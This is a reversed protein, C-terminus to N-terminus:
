CARPLCRRNVVAEHLAPNAQARDVVTEQARRSLHATQNELLAGLTQDDGRDVIADSVRESLDPRASIARLHEQGQTRAVRLLADESLTRSGSLLPAAVGIQDGALQEVLGAPAQEAELLRRALDARVEIEMERALPAMVSDFLEMEVAGYPNDASFFLDTVERLLERRRASSPEKALAILTDLKSGM